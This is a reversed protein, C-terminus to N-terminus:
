RQEFLMHTFEPPLSQQKQLNEKKTMVQLNWPVHLGCFSVGHLPFIHDVHHRVGTQAYRAQAVEYFERMQAVQIASLWKPQSKLKRARRTNSYLAVLGPNAQRWLRDNESKKAANLARWGKSYVRIESKKAEARIKVQTKVRERNRHYYPTKNPKKRVRWEESGVNGRCEDPHKGAKKAYNNHLTAARKEPNNKAWARLRKNECIRCSTKRRGTDSRLSYDEEPKEILCKKCIQVPMIEDSDCCNADFIVVM